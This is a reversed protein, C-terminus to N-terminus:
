SVTVAMQQIVQKSPMHVLLLDVPDGSEISIGWDAMVGIEIVDGMMWSENGGLKASVNEPSLVMETGDVLVVVKLEDVALPEGGRHKLYITDSTEDLWVQLDAHPADAPRDISFVFVSIMSVFLVVIGTLLVEGVVESVGDCNKIFKCIKYLCKYM